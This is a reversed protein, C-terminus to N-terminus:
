GPIKIKRLTSREVLKLKEDLEKFFGEIDGRHKLGIRPLNITTFSTNGRRMTVEPGHVNGIVRTRCNHSSIGSVDFRDSETEVDYGCGRYMTNPEISLIRTVRETDTFVYDGVKIDELKKRISTGDKSVPLPHDLTMTLKTYVDFIGFTVDYWNHYNVNRIIKKVRVFKGRDKIFVDMNKTDIYRSLGYTSEIDNAFSKIVNYASGFDSYHVIGNVVYMIMESEAVAGMTAVISNIDGEKYCQLNFPADIFLYNPFLRKATVKM